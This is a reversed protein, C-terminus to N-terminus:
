ATLIKHYFHELQTKLSLDYVTDKIQTTLGGLLKADVEFRPELEKGLKLKFHQVIANAQRSPLAISTKVTMPIIGNLILYHEKFVMCIDVLLNLRNKQTILNLFTYTLQHIHKKLALSIIRIKEATQISPNGILLKFEDSTTLLNEILELDKRVHDLTKSEHALNYLAQSYRKAVLSAM